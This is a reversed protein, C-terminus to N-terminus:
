VPYKDRCEPSCFHFVKGKVVRKLSSDVAVYTGCVPDQQLMTTGQSSTQAAGRVPTRPQRNGIGLARQVAAVVSRIVTLAIVFLIARFLFAFM